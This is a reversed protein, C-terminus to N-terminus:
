RDGQLGNPASRVAETCAIARLHEKAKFREAGSTDIEKDRELDWCPPPRTFLFTWKAIYYETFGGEPPLNLFQDSDYFDGCVNPSTKLHLQQPRGDESITPPTYQCVWPLLYLVDVPVTLCIYQAQERLPKQLLEVEKRLKERQEPTTKCRDLEQLYKNYTLLPHNNECASYARFASDSTPYGSEPLSNTTPDGRNKFSLPSCGTSLLVLAFLPITLSYKLGNLTPKIKLNNELAKIGGVWITNAPFLM